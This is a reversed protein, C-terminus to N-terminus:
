KANKLFAILDALDQPSLQQDLGSPMVSVTSPRMEEIEDKAIRVEEKPGTALVVEDASDKKVLGNHSKGSKTLVVVPEFSRVMSASPFVISELLDREQRIQGIRTLDPGVNGGLYGFPHCAACAAKTSNFIVQGRRIDGAKLSALLSELKERQKAVDVNIITYLEEAKKQVASPFKALNTKIADIRLGALAPSDKLAAVLAMGVSEDSCEKYAPLLRDAELPGAEQFAEALTMLQATTLKSRALVDAASSRLLVDQDPRLNGRLFDFLAPAIEGLAGPVAALANIRAGASAQSREAIAFLAEVFLPEPTKTAPLARAAAVALEVLGADAGDLVETLSAIWAPPTEKLGARAMARLAIRRTPAPSKPEDLTQAVLQQISDSKAFRALHGELEAAEADTLSEATLRSRLYGALADGWEPHRGVIWVATERVVPEASGLLGAVMQPDLGGSMQDLAILGARRVAPSEDTPWLSTAGPTNIEIVAFILSHELMRDPAGDLKRVAQV